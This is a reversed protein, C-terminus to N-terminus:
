PQICIIFFVFAFGYQPFYCLTLSVPGQLLVISALFVFYLQVTYICLPVLLPQTNRRRDMMTAVAAVYREVKRGIVIACPLKSIIMMKKKKKMVKITM